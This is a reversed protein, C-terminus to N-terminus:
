DISELLKEANDKYTGNMTVVKKLENTAAERDDNAIYALSLYWKTQESLINEGITGKLQEFDQIAQTWNKLELHCLGKYFLLQYDKNSSYATEFSQAAQDFKKLEYFYFAQEVFDTPPQDHERLIPNIINPYTEYYSLYLKENSPSGFYYFLMFPIIFLVVAAAVMYPIKINKKLSIGGGQEEKAIQDAALLASQMTIRTQLQREFEPDERLLVKIKEVDEQQLSKNIVKDILEENKKMEVM